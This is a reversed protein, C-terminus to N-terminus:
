NSGILNKIQDATQERKEAMVQFMDPKFQRGEVQLASARGVSSIGWLILYTPLTLISSM